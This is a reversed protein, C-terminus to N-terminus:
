RRRRRRTAMAASSWRFRRATTVPTTSASRMAARTLTSTSRASGSGTMPSLKVKAGIDGVVEGPRGGPASRVAIAVVMGKDTLDVPMSIPLPASALAMGIPAAGFANADMDTNPTELPLLLPVYGAKRLTVAVESTAPLGPLTFQGDTRTAVCPIDSRGYVCVEVGSVGQVGADSSSAAAGSDAGDSGGDLSETSLAPQLVVQWSLKITAGADASQTRGADGHAGGDHSGSRASGDNAVNADVSADSALSAAKDTCGGAALAALSAVIVYESVHM